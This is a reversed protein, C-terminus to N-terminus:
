LTDGRRPAEVGDVRAHQAVARRAAIERDIESMLLVVAKRSVLIQNILDKKIADDLDIRNQVGEIRQMAAEPGWERKARGLFWQFGRHGLLDELDILECDGSPM